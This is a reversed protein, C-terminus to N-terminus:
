GAGTPALSYRTWYDIGTLAFLIALWFFGAGAFVWFLPLGRDLEMFILLVIAAMTVAVGIHVVPAFVGLRLYAVGINAALLLLLSLWVVVLRGPPRPVTM